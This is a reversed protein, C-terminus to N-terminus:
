YQLAFQSRTKVVPMGFNYPFRHSNENWWVALKQFNGQWRYDHNMGEPLQHAVEHLLTGVTQGDPYLTIWRVGNEGIRSEAFGLTRSRNEMSFDVDVKVKGGLEAIAAEAVARSQFPSVRREAGEITRKIEINVAQEARNARQTGM